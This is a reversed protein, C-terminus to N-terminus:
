IYIFFVDNKIYKRIYIILIIKIVKKTLILIAQNKESLTNQINEYLSHLIMKQSVNVIEDGIKKQVTVFM